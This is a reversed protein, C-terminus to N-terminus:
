RGAFNVPTARIDASIVRALGALDRHVVVQEMGETKCLRGVEAAQDFGIELLLRGRNRIWSGAQGVIVRYADLGDRGGALALAPEFARVGIDLCELDARAIYPPNSVILDFGAHGSGASGLAEFWNGELAEFREEVGHLVANARAMDLAGPSLDVGVVRVAPNNVLMSVGICGSGCGLDLVRPTERGKLFALGLDVLLETEPRPILCDENLSFELGYFERSGLIRAVPEGGLRRLILREVREREGDTVERRESCVLQVPDLGLGHGVLIRADLDASGIGKRELRVRTDRWLAGLTKM